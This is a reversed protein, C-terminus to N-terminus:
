QSINRSNMDILPCHHWYTSKMLSLSKGAPPQGNKSTAHEDLQRSVAENLEQLSFFVKDRLPAYIRSYAIKVANEVLAKDKPKYSRTPMVAVQYHNCFDMFDNNIRAEYKDAKDVASKLNDPILVKPVGGFYHLANETATIFDEKKQTAVAEVYTLQSHGLIAVYVEVENVQGTVQDIWHLKKGTYDIFLKEAPEHEFHMTAKRNTSWERFHYCFHAYSYGDPHEGKYEEWLLWRNVGTRQLEKEISPFLTELVEYRATADQDPSLLLGELEQDPVSVIESLVLRKQGALRIYKKVTNRSIGLTRSIKQYPTGAEKLLFIQKITSMGITTAAM